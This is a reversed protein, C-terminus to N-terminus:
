KVLARLAAFAVPDSYAAIYKASSEACDHEPMDAFHNVWYGFLKAAPKKDVLGSDIATYLRIFFALLADYSDRLRTQTSTFTLDEAGHITLSKLVDTDSFRLEEGDPFKFNGRQWDMVRCAIQILRNSEFEKCLSDLKEAKKWTQDRRWQVLAVLGGLAGAGLTVVDILIKAKETDM